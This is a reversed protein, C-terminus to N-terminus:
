KKMALKLTMSATPKKRRTVPVSGGAAGGDTGATSGSAHNRPSRANAEPHVAKVPISAIELPMGAKRGGSDRFAAMVSPQIANMRAVINTPMVTSDFWSPTTGRSVSVTTDCIARRSNSLPTM